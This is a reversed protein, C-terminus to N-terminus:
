DPIRDFWNIDSGNHLKLLPIKQKTLVSLDEYIEDQLRYNVILIAEVELEFLEEPRRIPKGRFEKGWLAPSANFYECREEFASNGWYELLRNLYVCSPWIGIKQYDKCTADLEKLRDQMAQPTYHYQESWHALDGMRRIIDIKQTCRRECVGCAICASFDTVGTGAARLCIFVGNVTQREEVCKDGSEVFIKHNYAQMCASIPLGVTCPECYGCGSCLKENVHISFNHSTQVVDAKQSFASCNEDVQAASTMGSLMVNIEPFTSLFRLAKVSVPDGSEDLKKFLNGYSPIMGGGLSNMTAVGLEAEGAARLVPLWKEYNMVNMSITIGEFLGDKIIKMVDPVDCHLSICLKGILGQEQARKAGDYLGGPKLVEEYQKWNMVSWIHYFEIQDKHLTKLSMDLRKLLEDATHDISLGSKAAVFVPVTAHAFATGLIWEAYGNSYTPAVDFYNIGKGIAYEVLSVCKHRGTQDQLDEQPFRTCGFGLKSVSPGNGAWESYIM